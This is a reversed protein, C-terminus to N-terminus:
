SQSRKLWNRHPKKIHSTISSKEEHSGVTIARKRELPNLELWHPKRIPLTVGSREGHSGVTVARKREPNAINLEVLIEELTQKVVSFSPRSGVDASWCSKMLWQLPVPWHATHSYDMKPREGGLVVDKTHKKSSYGQFPKEM